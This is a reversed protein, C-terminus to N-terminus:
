CLAQCVTLAPSRFSSDNSSTTTQDQCHFPGPGWPPPGAVPVPGSVELWSAGRRETEAFM